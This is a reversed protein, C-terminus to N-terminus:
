TQTINSDVWKQFNKNTKLYFDNDINEQYYSAKNDALGILSDESDDSTIRQLEDIVSQLDATLLTENEEQDELEIGEKLELASNLCTEAVFLLNKIKTLTFTDEDFRTM